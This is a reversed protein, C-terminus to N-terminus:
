HNLTVSLWKNQNPKYSERMNIHSRGVLCLLLFICYLIASCIIEGPTKVLSFSKDNKGAPTADIPAAIIPGVTFPGANM